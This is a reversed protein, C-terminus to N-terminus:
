WVEVKSSEGDQKSNNDSSNDCRHENSTGGGAGEEGNEGGVITALHGGLVKKKRRRKLQQSKIYMGKAKMGWREIRGLASATLNDPLCGQKVMMDVVKEAMLTQKEVPLYACASLVENFTGTDMMHKRGKYMIRLTEIVFEATLDLSTKKLQVPTGEHYVTKPRHGGYVARLLDNSPPMQEKRLLRLLSLAKEFQGNVSYAMLVWEVHGHESKEPKKQKRGPRRQYHKHKNGHNNCYHRWFKVANTTCGRQGYLMTLNGLLVPDWRSSPTHTEVMETANQVYSFSPEEQAAVLMVISNCMDVSMPTKQAEMIGLVFDLVPDVVGPPIPRPARRAAKILLILTQYDLKNHFVDTYACAGSGAGSSGTSNPGEKEESRNMRENHYTQMRKVIQLCRHPEGHESCVALATKYLEDLPLSLHRQGKQEQAVGDEAMSEDANADDQVDADAAYPGLLDSDRELRLMLAFVEDASWVKITDRLVGATPKFGTVLMQDMWYNAKKVNKARTFCAILREFTNSDRVINHADMYNVLAEALMQMPYPKWHV